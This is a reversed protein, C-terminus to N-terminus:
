QGTKLTSLQQNKLISISSSAIGNRRSTLFQEATLVAEDLENQRFIEQAAQSLFSVKGPPATREALKINCGLKLLPKDYTDPTELQLKLRFLDDLQQKQKFDLNKIDIKWTGKYTRDAEQPCYSALRAAIKQSHGKLQQFRYHSAFDSSISHCDDPLRDIRKKFIASLMLAKARLANEHEIKEFKVVAEELKLSEAELDARIQNFAGSSKVNLQEFLTWFVATPLDLNKFAEKNWVIEGTEPISSVYSTLFSNSSFTIALPQHPPNDDDSLIKTVISVATNLKNTVFQNDIDQNSLPSQNTTIKVTM